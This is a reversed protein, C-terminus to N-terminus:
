DVLAGYTLQLAPTHLKVGLRATALKRDEGGTLANTWISEYTHRSPLAGDCATLPSLKKVVEFEGGRLLEPHSWELARFHWLSHHRQHQLVPSVKKNDDQESHFHQAFADNRGEAARLFDARAAVM